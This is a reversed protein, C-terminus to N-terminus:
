MYIKNFSKATKYRSTCSSFVKKGALQEPFPFLLSAYAFIFFTYSFFFLSLMCACFVFKKGELAVKEGPLFVRHQLAHEMKAM